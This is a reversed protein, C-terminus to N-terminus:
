MEHRNEWIDFLQLINPHEVLKLIAVEREIAVPMRQAYSGYNAAAKTRDIRELNALSGAQTVHAMSKRIIKIAVKQGTLRHNGLRVHASSGQGLMRGLAWPGINQKERRRITGDPSITLYGHTRHSDASQQSAQTIASIRKDVLVRSTDVTASVSRGHHHEVPFLNRQVPNSVGRAAAKEKAISLSDSKHHSRHNPGGLHANISLNTADGLPQRGGPARGSDRHHDM